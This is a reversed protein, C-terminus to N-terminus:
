KVVQGTYVIFPKALFGADSAPWRCSYFHWSQVAECIENFCHPWLVGAMSFSASSNQYDILVFGLLCICCKLYLM